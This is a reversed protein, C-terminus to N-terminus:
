LKEIHNKLCLITENSLVHEIKCCDIESTEESVGIKLLFKKILNHREFVNCAIARGQETLVIKGYSQKTILGREKLENMAKNVAPKSVGLRAAVDISKVSGNKELIHIAELYDEISQTLAKM